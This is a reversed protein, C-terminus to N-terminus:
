KIKCTYVEELESNIYNNNQTNLIRLDKNIDYNINHNNKLTYEDFNSNPIHKKIKNKYKTSIRIEIKHVNSM